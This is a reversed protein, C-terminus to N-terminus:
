LDEGKVKKRQKKEKQRQSDMTFIHPHDIYEEAEFSLERTMYWYKLEKLLEGMTAGQYRFFGIFAVPMMIPIGLYVCVNIPIGTTRWVFVVVVSSILLAIIGTVVERAGLGKWLTGKFEQEFDKNMDIKM